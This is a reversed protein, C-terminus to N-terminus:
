DSGILLDTMSECVQHKREKVLDLGSSGSVWVLMIDNRLKADWKEFDFM